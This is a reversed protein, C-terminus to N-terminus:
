VAGATDYHSFRGLEIDSSPDSCLQCKSPDLAFCKTDFEQLPVRSDAPFLLVDWNQYRM